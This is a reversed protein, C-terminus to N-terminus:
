LMQKKNYLFTKLNNILAKIFINEREKWAYSTKQLFIGPKDNLEILWVKEKKDILFDATYLRAKYKNFKNDIITVLRLIQKPIKNKSIYIEKGGRGVNSVLIKENKSARIYSDIIKGRSIVIRIDYVGYNEKIKKEKKCVLFEQLVYEEKIKRVKKLLNKKNCIIIDRASSGKTPKFVVKETKIKELVSKLNNKNKILFTKPVFKKFLKYTKYKDACINQIYFSNFLMKRKSFFKRLKNAKEYYSDKDYIMDAKINYVKIWGEEKNYSWGKKFINKDYWKYSTRYLEIGKRRAKLILSSYLVRLMESNYKEKEYPLRGWDSSGCLAVIIKKKSM